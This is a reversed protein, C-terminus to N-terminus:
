KQLIPIYLAVVAGQDTYEREVGGGMQAALAAVVASGRGERPSPVAVGSDYVRCCLTGGFPEIAILITGPRGSLGHRSANTILESIILGIQWCQTAELVIPSGTLTLGIGREDLSARSFAQCINRLYEVLDIYGHVVPIQLSRHVDAVDRLRTASQLLVAKAESNSARSAALSLSSIAISYENVVRHTIEGVLLWTAESFSRQHNNSPSLSRQEDFM